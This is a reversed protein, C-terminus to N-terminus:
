AVELIWSCRSNMSFHHIRPLHHVLVFQVWIVNVSFLCGQTLLLSSDVDVCTFYIYNSQLSVYFRLVCSLRCSIFLSIPCSRIDSM